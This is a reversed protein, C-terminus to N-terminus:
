HNSKEDPLQYSIQIQTDQLPEREFIIRNNSLTWPISDGDLFELQLTKPLFPEEIDVSQEVFTKIAKSIDKLAEGYNPDCISINFGGTLDALEAVMKGIKASQSEELEQKLCTEDKILISFVFLRKGLPKLYTNFTDVIDQATTARGQDGPREDENTAIIVVLDTNSRYLDRNDYNVREMSSKLARLPQELHGQCFPPSKCHRSPFHSVTYLFVKEHDPTQPTLIRQDLLTGHITTSLGTAGKHVITPKAELPMLRGYAFFGDIHDQWKAQVYHKKWESGDAKVVDHDGHNTNIFGMQWDYDPIFTFLPFLREGIDILHHDMSYSPDIVIQADLQRKKQRKLTIIYERYKSPSESPVENPIVPITENTRGERRAVSLDGQSNNNHRKRLPPRTETPPPEQSVSSESSTFFTDQQCSIFCFTFFGLLFIRSM